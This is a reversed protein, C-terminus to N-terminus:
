PFLSSPSLCKFKRKDTKPHNVRKHLCSRARPTKQYLPLRSLFRGPSSWLPLLGRATLPKM